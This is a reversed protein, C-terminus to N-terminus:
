CAVEAGSTPKAMVAYRIRQRAPHRSPFTLTLTTVIGGAALLLVPNLMANFLCDIMFVTLSVALAGLPATSPHKWDDAKLRRVALLVPLMITATMAVLGVIGRQGLTIIWLGDTALNEVDDGMRSPRNRGHAGWGFVPQRLAHSSLMDEAELRYRLSGLKVPVISEVANLLHSGDWLGPARLGMYVLPSVALCWILLDRHLTKMVALAAAGLALLAIAGTSKCLVTTVILGLVVFGMPMSGIKRIAGAWWLWLAVLSATTMWTAVALGHQMFVTPRWGGFGHTQVWSHQHFGYVWIHLRPSLRIELLCLPLYLLGGIVIGAALVRLGELDSFYLRGMLYPVGWTVVQRYVSSAGDYAGLGNALSSAMPCLLWVIMPLDLWTLRFTGLRSSDFLIMGLLAGYSAAEMKGYGPLGAFNYGAMPLFLWAGLFATVAAIRPQTKGFLVIVVLPWGWLAIPITFSLRKGIWRWPLISVL